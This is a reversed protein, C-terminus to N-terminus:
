RRLSGRDGNWYDSDKLHSNNEPIGFDKLNAGSTLEFQKVHFLQEV